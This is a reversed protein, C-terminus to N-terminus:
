PDLGFEQEYYAIYSDRMTYWDQATLDRQLMEADPEMPAIWLEKVALKARIADIAAHWAAHVNRADRATTSDDANEYVWEEFGFENRPETM